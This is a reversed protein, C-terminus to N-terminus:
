KIFDVWKDGFRKKYEKKLKRPIRNKGLAWLSFELRMCSHAFRNCAKGLKIYPNEEKKM